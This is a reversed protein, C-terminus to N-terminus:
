FNGNSQFFKKIKALIRKIRKCVAAKQVGSQAAIKEYTLGQFYYKKILKREEATLSTLAKHLVRKEEQVSIIKETDSKPDAIQFGTELMTDLSREKRKKKRWVARKEEILIQEYAKLVKETVEIETLSGNVEYKIVNM